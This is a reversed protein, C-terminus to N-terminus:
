SKVMDIHLIGDDLYAENIQQFGFSEYFKSLYTQASIKIAPFGFNENIFNITEKVLHRGIKQNRYNPDVLVRGFAAEKYYDGPKFIRSYAIIEEPSSQSFAFLHYAREDKGDLERYACNQEVVFVDIRLQLISLFEKLTLEQFSKTVWKM